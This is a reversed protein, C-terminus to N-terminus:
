SNPSSARRGMNRNNWTSERVHGAASGNSFSRIKIRYKFISPFHSPIPFRSELVIFVRTSSIKEEETASRFREGSPTVGDPVTVKFDIWSDLRLHESEQCEHAIRQADGWDSFYVNRAAKIYQLDNIARVDTRKRLVASNRLQENVTYVDGDYHCIAYKPTIPLFMMIGSSGLGFISSDFTRVKQKYYKNVVITPDDSTVFKVNTDNIIILTKLDSISERHTSFLRLSESIMADNSVDLPEDRYRAGNFIVDHMGQHMARMRMMAMETRSYQLLSFERLFNLDEANVNGNNRELRNVVLSYITEFTGMHHEIVGDRGYFYDRACQSKVPANRVATQSEVNYLNIAAGKRDLSFPKLHCRPVYHQRKNQPM